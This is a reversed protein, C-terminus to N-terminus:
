SRLESVGAGEDSFVWGGAARKRPSELQQRPAASYDVLWVRSDFLRIARQRWASAGLEAAEEGRGIRARQELARRHVLLPCPHRGFFLLAWSFSAVLAARM